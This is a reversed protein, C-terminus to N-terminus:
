QQNITLTVDGTILKETKKKMPPLLYHFAFYSQIMIFIM